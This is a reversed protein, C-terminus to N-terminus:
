VGAIPIQIDFSTKWIDTSIVVKYAWNIPSIDPDDTCPLETTFEGNVLTVPIKKPGVIVNDPSDRLPYPLHFTVTGVAPTQAVDPAVIKGHLTKVNLAAPWAM